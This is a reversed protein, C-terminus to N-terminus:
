VVDENLYHDLVETMIAKGEATELDVYRSSYYSALAMEQDVLAIIQALGYKAVNLVNDRYTLADTLTTIVQPATPITEDFYERNNCELNFLEFLISNIQEVATAQYTSANDAGIGMMGLASTLLQQATM